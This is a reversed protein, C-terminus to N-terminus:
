GRSMVDRAMIAAQVSIPCQMRYVPVRNILMNILGNEQTRHEYGAARFSQDATLERAERWSIRHIETREAKGIFCVAQVPMRINVNRHFKGDWPTGYVYVRDGLFRILPKDDNVILAADGFAKKWMTAHTSKGSGSPGSFLYAKGDLAVASSHFFLVDRYLAQECFARYVAISALYEDPFQTGELRREEDIMAPTLRVIIDPRGRGPEETRYPEMQKQIYSSLEAGAQETDVGVTLDALRYVRM